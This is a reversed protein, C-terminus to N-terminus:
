WSGRQSKAVGRATGAAIRRLWPLDEPTIQIHGYLMQVVRPKVVLVTVSSRLGALTARDDYKWLWRGSRERVARRRPPCRRLRNLDKALDRLTTYCGHVGSTGFFCWNLTYSVRGSFLTRLEAISELREIGSM